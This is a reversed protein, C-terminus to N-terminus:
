HRSGDLSECQHRYVTLVQGTREGSLVRVKYQDAYDTDCVIVARMSGEGPLRVIVLDKEEM